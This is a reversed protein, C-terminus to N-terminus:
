PLILFFFLNHMGPPGLDLLVALLKEMLDGELAGGWPQLEPKVLPLRQSLSTHLTTFAQEDEQDTCKEIPKDPLAVEPVSQPLDVQGFVFAICFFFVVFALNIRVAVAELFTHFEDKKSFIFDNLPRMHPENFEHGNSINQIIKSVQVLARRGEANIADAICKTLCHVYM